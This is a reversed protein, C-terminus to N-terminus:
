ITAMGVRTRLSGGGTLFITPFRELVSRASTPRSMRGTAQRMLASHFVNWTFRGIAVLLETGTQFRGLIREGSYLGAFDVETWSRASQRPFVWTNWPM